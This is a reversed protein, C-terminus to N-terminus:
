KSNKSVGNTKLLNSSDVPNEISLAQVLQYNESMNNNSEQKKKKPM